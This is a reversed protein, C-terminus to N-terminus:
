KFFFFSPAHLIICSCTHVYKLNDFNEPEMSWIEEVQSGKCGSLSCIFCWISMWVCMYLLLHILLPRSVLRKVLHAAQGRLAHCLLHWEHTQKWAGNNQVSLLALWNAHRAACNDCMCWKLYICWKPSQQSYMAKLMNGNWGWQMTNIRLLFGM